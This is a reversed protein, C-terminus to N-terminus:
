ECEDRLAQIEQDQADLQALLRQQEANAEEANVMAALRGKLQLVTWGLYASVSVAVLLLVMTTNGM